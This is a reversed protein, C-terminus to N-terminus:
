EYQLDGTDNMRRHARDHRCVGLRDRKGAETGRDALGDREALM